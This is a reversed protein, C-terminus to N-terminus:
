FHRSFLSSLLFFFSTFAVLFIFCSSDFDFDFSFDFNLDGSHLRAFESDRPPRIKKACRIEEDDDDEEGELSDLLAVVSFFFSFFFPLM